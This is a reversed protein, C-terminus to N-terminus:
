IKIEIEIPILSSIERKNEDEKRAAKKHVIFLEVVVVVLFITVLSNKM